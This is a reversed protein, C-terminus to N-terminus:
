TNRPHYAKSQFAKRTEKKKGPHCYTSLVLQDKEFVQLEHTSRLDKRPM